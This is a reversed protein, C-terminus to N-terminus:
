NEREARPEIGRAALVPLAFIIGSHPASLPGIVAETADFVAEAGVADGVITFLTRHRVETQALLDRLGPFLPVDDRTGGHVLIRMAGCSELITVGTAGAQHWARIVDQLRDVDDLVLVVMSPM